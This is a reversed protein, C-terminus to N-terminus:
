GFLSVRGDGSHGGVEVEKSGQPHYQWTAFVKQKSLDGIEKAAITQHFFVEEDKVLEKSHKGVLM